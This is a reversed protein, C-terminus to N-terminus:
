KCGLAVRYNHIAKALAQGDRNAPPSKQYFADLVDIIQCIQQQERLASQEAARQARHGQDQAYLVSNVGVAIALIIALIAAYLVKRNTPADM